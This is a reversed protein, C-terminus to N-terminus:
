VDRGKDNSISLYTTDGMGYAVYVKGGDIAIQPERAKDFSTPTVQVPQLLLTALVTAAIMM